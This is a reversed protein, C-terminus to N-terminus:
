RPRARFIMEVLTLRRELPEAIEPHAALIAKRNLREGAILRDLYEEAIEQVKREPDGSPPDAPKKGEYGAHSSENWSVYAVGSVIM